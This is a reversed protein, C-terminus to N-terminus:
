NGLFQDDIKKVTKGEDGNIDVLICFFNMIFFINPFKKEFHRWDSIQLKIQKSIIILHFHSICTLSVIFLTLEPLQTMSMKVKCQQLM